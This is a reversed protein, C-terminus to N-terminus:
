EFDANFRQILKLLAERFSPEHRADVVVTIATEYPRVESSAISVINKNESM